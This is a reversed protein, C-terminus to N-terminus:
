FPLDDEDDSAPPPPISPIGAGPDPRKTQEAQEEKSEEGDVEDDSNGADQFERWEKYSAVQESGGWKNYTELDIVDGVSISAYKPKNTKAFKGLWKKANGPVDSGDPDYLTPTLVMFKETLEEKFKKLQGIAITLNTTIAVLGIDTLLFLVQRKKAPAGGNDNIYKEVADMDGKVAIKMGQPSPEFLAINDKSIYYASKYSGGRPGLDDSYSSLSMANGIYIGKLIQPDLPINEKDERDYYTFIVKGEDDSKVEIRMKVDLKPYDSSGGSQSGALEDKISTM